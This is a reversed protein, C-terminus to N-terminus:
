QKEEKRIEQIALNWTKESILRSNLFLAKIRNFQKDTASDRIVGITVIQEDVAGAYILSTMYANNMTKFYERMFSKRFNSEDSVSFTEGKFQERMAINIYKDIESEDDSEKYFKRINDIILDTKDQGERAKKRDVKSQEKFAEESLGYDEASIFANIIPLNAIKEVGSLHKFKDHVNVKFIGGFVQNWTWKLMPKLSYWGGAEFEQDTLINQGTWEDEPNIDSFYQSWKM